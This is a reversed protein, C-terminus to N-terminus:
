PVKLFDNTKTVAVVSPLKKLRLGFIIAVEQSVKWLKECSPSMDTATIQMIVCLKLRCSNGDSTSPATPQPLFTKKNSSVCM